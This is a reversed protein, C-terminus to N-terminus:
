LELLLFAYLIILTIGIYDLGPPPVWLLKPGISMAHIGHRQQVSVHNVYSHNDTSHGPIFNRSMERQLPYRNHM